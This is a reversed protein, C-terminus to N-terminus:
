GIVDAVAACLQDMRDESIGAVNIRGSGVIYISYKSRLEDVQMPTLGSFSFMGYQGLLFSFDRDVGTRKMGDVFGSRLRHIRERMADLEDHWQASLTDDGLITAVIAGGHRPPNSYNARVARKLQSHAASAEEHTAAILSVAGVRESYLGFNKSFSSCIIAEPNKSLITHLGAADEVLGRGFGQYAFDVMPLLHRQALVEAIRLWQLDNPDVGTPNHCCGHLLIVDGPKPKSELDEILADFDLSTKDAALYRYPETPLGAATLIANHNAWTPNPIWIKPEPLQTRIFDAAVRLAGTGGPTQLVGVREPEVQSCGDSGTLMLDRVHHRYDPLGDIGLYGKTVESALIKDEAAKVCQLIPTQGSADKYVGVSLNMKDPNSDNQFAETLGLIPDPPATEIISFRRATASPPSATM